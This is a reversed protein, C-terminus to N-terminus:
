IAECYHCFIQVVAYFDTQAWGSKHCDAISGPSADDMVEVKVNSWCFILMHPIFVNITNVRTSATV